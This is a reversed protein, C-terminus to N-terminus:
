IVFDKRNLEKEVVTRISPGVFGQESTLNITDNKEPLFLM